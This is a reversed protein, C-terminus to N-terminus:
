LCVDGTPFSSISKICRGGSDHEHDDGMSRGKRRVARKEARLGKTQAWSAGGFMIRM